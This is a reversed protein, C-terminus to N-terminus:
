NGEASRGELAKQYSYLLADRAWSNSFMKARTDEDASVDKDQKDRIGNTFRVVTEELLMREFSLVQRIAEIDEQSKEVDPIDELRKREEAKDRFEQLLELRREPTVHMFEVGFKLKTKGTGAKNPVYVYVTWAFVAENNLIFDGISINRAPKSSM